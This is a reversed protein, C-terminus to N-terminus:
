KPLVGLKRLAWNVGGVILLIGGLVLGASILTHPNLALETGPVIPPQNLRM